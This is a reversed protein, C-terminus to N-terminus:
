ASFHETFWATVARDAAAHPADAFPHSMGAVTVHRSPGALAALLADQDPLFEPYEHEGTVLLLPTRLGAMAAAMDMSAAKAAWGGASGGVVAVPGADIPLDRQLAARADTFEAAAGEVMPALGDLLLDWDEVREAPRSGTGPLGFYVRWAPLGRLPLVAAMAAPSGPDATPHWGAIMPARGTVGDPPLAVFPVGAATGEIAEEM